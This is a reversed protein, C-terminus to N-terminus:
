DWHMWEFCEIYGDWYVLFCSDDWYMWCVKERFSWYNPENSCKYIWTEVYWCFYDRKSSWKWKKKKKKRTRNTKSLMHDKIIKRAIVTEINMCIRHLFTIISVLVNSWPLKVLPCLWFWGSFFHHNMNSSKFSMSTSIM